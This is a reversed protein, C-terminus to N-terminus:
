LAAGETALGNPILNGPVLRGREAPRHSIAAEDVDPQAAAGFRVRAWGEELEEKV